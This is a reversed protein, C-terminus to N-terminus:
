KKLYEALIAETVVTAGTAAAVAALDIGQERALRKAKPTARVGAAQAPAATAPGGQAAAGQPAAAQTDASRAAPRSSVAGNERAAKDLLARNFAPIDSDSEGPAGILALVFGVPVISRPPAFVELLTGNAPCELEFAAKDTTVEAILEGKEVADGPNRMWRTVTADVLNADLLPVTFRTM